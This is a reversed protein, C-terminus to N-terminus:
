HHIVKVHEKNVDLEHSLHAATGMLREHEQQLQGLLGQVVNFSNLDVLKEGDTETVTETDQHSLNALHDSLATVARDLENLRERLQALQSGFDDFKGPSESSQKAELARM